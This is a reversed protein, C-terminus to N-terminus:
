YSLRDNCKEPNKPKSSLREIAERFFGQQHPAVLNALKTSAAYLYALDSRAFLERNELAPTAYLEDTLKLIARELERLQEWTPVFGQEVRQMFDLYEHYANRGGTLWESPLPQPEDDRQSALQADEDLGTQSIDSSSSSSFAPGRREGREPPFGGNFQGTENTKSLM